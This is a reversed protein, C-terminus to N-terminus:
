QDAALARQHFCRSEPGLCHEHRPQEGTSMSHYLISWTATRMKDINPINDLIGGRNFNQLSDSKAETLCGRGTSGLREEKSLMRLATGMRKDAHNLFDLKEVQEPYDPYPNSDCMDAKYAKPGRDSLM